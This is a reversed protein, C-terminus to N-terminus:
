YLPKGPRHMHQNQMYQIQRCVAKLVILKVSTLLGVMKGAMRSDCTGKTDRVSLLGPECCGILPCFCAQREVECGCALSVTVSPLICSGWCLRADFDGAKAFLGSRACM